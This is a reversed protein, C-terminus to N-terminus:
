VTVYIHRWVCVAVFCVPCIEKNEHVHVYLKGVRDMGTGILWVIRNLSSVTEADEPDRKEDEQIATSRGSRAQSRLIGKENFDILRFVLLYTGWTKPSM